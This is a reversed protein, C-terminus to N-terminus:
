VFMFPHYQYIDDGLPLIYVYIYIYTFEKPNVVCYELDDDNVAVGACFLVTNRPHFSSITVKIKLNVIQRDIQPDRWIYLYLYLVYLLYIYMYIYICYIYICTHIYMYTSIYICLECM